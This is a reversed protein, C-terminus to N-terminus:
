RKLLLVQCRDVIIKEAKISICKSYKESFKKANRSLEDSHLMIELKEKVDSRSNFYNVSLGLNNESIRYSLIAQELQGPLILIPIGQLLMLAGTNHGGETIAFRCKEFANGLCVPKNNVKVTKTSLAEAEESSLGLGYVFSPLGKESLLKIVPRFYKSSKRLYVFINEKSDSLWFIDSDLQSYVVPGIYEANRPVKYHDLENLTCLFTEVDSFIDSVSKLLSYRAELLAPNVLELFSQEKKRLVSDPLQFWPQLGPMPCQFPPLSFGTGIAAVPFGLTKAALLAYPAHEAIVVAPKITKLIQEWNKLRWLLYDRDSFGNKLLNEGYTHSLIGSRESVPVRSKPFFIVEFGFEQLGSTDRFSEPIALIVHMGRRKFESAIPNIRYLHGLGGGIEWCILVSSSKM